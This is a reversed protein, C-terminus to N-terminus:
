DRRKVLLKSNNNFMTIIKEIKKSTRYMEPSDRKGNIDLEDVKLILDDLKDFGGSFTLKDFKDIIFDINGNNINELILKKFIKNDWLPAIKSTICPYGVDVLQSKDLLKYFILINEDIIIGELDAIARGAETTQLCNIVEDLLNYSSDEWYEDTEPYYRFEFIDLGTRIVYGIYDDDKTLYTGNIVGKILHGFEHIFTMVINTDSSFLTSCIIAPNEKEYIFEKGSSNLSYNHGIISLGFTFDEIDDTDEDIDSGYYDEPDFGNDRMIKNVHDDKIFIDMNLFLIEIIEKSDSYSSLVGYVCLVFFPYFDDESKFRSSVIRKALIYNEEM